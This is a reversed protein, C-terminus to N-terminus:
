WNGGAASFCLLCRPVTRCQDRGGRGKAADLDPPLRVDGGPGPIIIIIIRMAGQVQFDNNNYNNNHYDCLSIIIIIIIMMAGQVTNCSFGPITNLTTAVLDARRALSALNGQHFKKPEQLQKQLSIQTDLRRRRCGPTMAPNGLSPHTQWLTWALNASCLQAFSRASQNRSCRWSMM